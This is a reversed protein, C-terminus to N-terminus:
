SFGTLGRWFHQNYSWASLIMLYCKNKQKTFYDYYTKNIKWPKKINNYTTVMCFFTMVKCKVAKKKKYDRNQICITNSERHCTFTSWALTGLWMFTTTYRFNKTVYRSKIINYLIWRTLSTEFFCFCQSCSVAKQGQDFSEVYKSLWLM